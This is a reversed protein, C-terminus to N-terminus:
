SGIAEARQRRRSPGAGGMRLREPLPRLFSPVAGGAARGVLRRIARLLLQQALVALALVIIIRLPTLALQSAEALWPQDTLDWVWRSLRDDLCDPQDPQLLLVRDVGCEYRMRVAGAWTPPRSSVGAPSRRAHRQPFVRPLRTLDQRCGPH